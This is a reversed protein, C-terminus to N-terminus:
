KNYGAQRKRKSTFAPEELIEAEALAAEGAETVEFAPEKVAEEPQNAKMHEEFHKVSNVIADIMHQAGEVSAFRLIVGNETLAALEKKSPKNKGEPNKRLGEHLYVCPANEIIGHGTVVRQAGFDFVRNTV